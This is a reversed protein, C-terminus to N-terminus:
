LFCWFYSSSFVFMLVEIVWKGKGRKGKERAAEPIIILLLLLLLVVVVLLDVCLLLPFVLLVLLVRGVVGGPSVREKRERRCTRFSPTAAIPSTSRSSRTRNGRGATWRTKGYRGCWASCRRRCSAPLYVVGGTIVGEQYM